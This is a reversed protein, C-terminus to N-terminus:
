FLYKNNCSALWADRFEQLYDENSNDLFDMIETITQNYSQRSIEGIHLKYRLFVLTTNIVDTECYNQIELLQGKDFMPTVKSGDIGVKGPFGLIACVENLKIRASSGFDSLVDLLDCNWEINYRYQYKRADEYFKTCSIGYKMARYKLVPLDFGKGNFSVLVPSHKQIYDFFSAILLSEQYEKDKCFTGVKKFSYQRTKDHYSATLLVVSIAVVQHFPQRLFENRGNTVELHYQKLLHRQELLTQPTVGLLNSCAEVDPITEIDFVIVNTPDLYNFM